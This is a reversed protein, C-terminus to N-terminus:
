SFPIRLLILEFVLRNDYLRWSTRVGSTLEIRDSNFFTMDALVELGLSSRYGGDGYTHDYFLEGRIRKVYSFGLLSRDPYWLPFRYMCSITGILEHSLALNVIDEDWTYGRAPTISWSLQTGGATRWIGEHQLIFGDDSFLGNGYLTIMDSVMVPTESGLAAAARLVHAIGLDYPILSRYPSVRGYSVTDVMGILLPYEPLNTSLVQGYVGATHKLSNGYSQKYMTTSVGSLFSFGPTGASSTGMDHWLDGNVTLDIVDGDHGWSAHALMTKTDFQYGVSLSTVDAAFPDSFKVGCVLENVREPLFVGWAYPTFMWDISRYSTSHVEKNSQMETSFMDPM